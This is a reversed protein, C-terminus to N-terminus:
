TMADIPPFPRLGKVAPSRSDVLLMLLGYSASYHAGNAAAAWGVIVMMLMLVVMGMTMPVIMVMAVSVVVPWQAGGMIM